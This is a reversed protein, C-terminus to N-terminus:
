ILLIVQPVASCRGSLDRWRLIGFRGSPWESRRRRASRLLEFHTWSPSGTEGCQCCLVATSETQAIPEFGHERRVAAVVLWRPSGQAAPHVGAGCSMSKCSPWTRNARCPFREVKLRVLSPSYCNLQRPRNTPIENMGNPTSCRNENTKLRNEEVGVHVRVLLPNLRILRAQRDVIISARLSHGCSEARAAWSHDNRPGPM